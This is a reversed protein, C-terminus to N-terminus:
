RRKEWWRPPGKHLVYLVEEIEHITAIILANEKLLLNCRGATNTTLGVIMSRDVAAFGGDIRLRLWWKGDIRTWTPLCREWGAGNMMTMKGNGVSM